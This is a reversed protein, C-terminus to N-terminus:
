SCETGWGLAMSSCTHQQGTSADSQHRSTLMDVSFTKNPSIHFTSMKYLQRCYQQEDLQLIYAM